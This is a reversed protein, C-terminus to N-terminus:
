AQIKNPFEEEYLEFTIPMWDKCEDLVRNSFERIEHQADAKMRMDLLHMISRANMTFTMNVKTGIPLIM